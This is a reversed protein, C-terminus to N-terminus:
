PKTLRWLGKQTNFYVDTASLAVGGPYPYPGSGGSAITEAVGGTKSVRVLYQEDVWYVHTDDVAIQHGLLLGKPPDTKALETADGGNKSIRRISGCGDRWFIDTADIAIASSDYNCVGSFLEDVSADAKSVRQLSGDGFATYFHTADVQFSRGVLEVATSAFEMKANRPLQRLQWGRIWYASQEDVAIASAEGEMFTMLAPKGSMTSRMVSGGKISGSSSTGRNTWFLVDGDIVLDAPAAQKTAITIAEGGCRPVVHVTGIPSIIANM